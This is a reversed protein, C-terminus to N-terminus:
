EIFLHDLQAFAVWHRCVFCHPDFAKCPPGIVKLLKELVTQMTKSRKVIVLDTKGKFSRKCKWERGLNLDLFGSKKM